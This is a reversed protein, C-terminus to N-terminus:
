REREGCREGCVIREISYPDLGSAIVVSPVGGSVARSAARIKAGACGLLVLSLPHPAGSPCPTPTPARLEHSSQPLQSPADPAPPSGSPPYFRRFFVAVLRMWGCALAWVAVAAFRFSPRTRGKNAVARASSSNNLFVSAKNRPVTSEDEVSCLRSARGHPHPGQLRCVLSSVNSASVISVSGCLVVHKHLSIRREKERREGMGGRGGASKEGIM